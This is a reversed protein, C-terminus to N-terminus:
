TSIPSLCKKEKDHNQEPVELFVKTLIIVGAIGLALVAIAIFVWIM